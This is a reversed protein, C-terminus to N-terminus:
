KISLKQNINMISIPRFNEKKTSEKHPKAINTVTAESFSAPLKIGTETKHFLKLFIPILEEKFTEYCEARFSDPV